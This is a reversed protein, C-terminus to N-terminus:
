SYLGMKRGEMHKKMAEGLTTEPPSAKAAGNTRVSPNTAMRAKRDAELEAIKADKESLAKRLNRIMPVSLSTIYTELARDMPDDTFQEDRIADIDAHSILGSEVLDALQVKLGDGTERMAASFVKKAEEQTKMQQAKTQTELQEKKLSAEQTLRQHEVSAANMKAGADMVAKQLAAKRADTMDKASTELLALVKEDRLISNPELLAEQLKGVPLDTFESVERLVEYGESYPKAAKEQYEPTRQVYNVAEQERYRKLAESDEPKIQSATEELAKVKAEFDSREKLWTERETKLQKVEKRIGTWANQAKDGEPVIDGLDDTQTAAEKKADPKGLKDWPKKAAKDDTQVEQKTVDEKPKDDVQASKDAQKQPPLVPQKTRQQEVDAAMASRLSFGSDNPVTPDNVPPTPAQQAPAAQTPAEITVAESM